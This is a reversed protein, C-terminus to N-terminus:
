IIRCKFGLENLLKMLQSRRDGQVLIELDRVSGGTALRKKIVSALNALEEPEGDWGTIITAQKGSRGKKEFIIDLRAKNSSKNESETSINEEEPSITNDPLTERLSKLTDLWDTAM